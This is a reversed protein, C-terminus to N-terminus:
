DSIFKYTKGVEISDLLLLEDESSFSGNGDVKNNINVICPVYIGSPILSKIIEAREETDILGVADDWTIMQTPIIFTATRFYHYGLRSSYKWLECYFEGGADGSAASAALLSRRRNM